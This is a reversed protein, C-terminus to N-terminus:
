AKLVILDMWGFLDRRVGGGPMHPAAIWQEAKACRWDNKRAISMARQSMLIRKALLVGFFLSCAAPVPVRHSINAAAQEPPHHLITIDACLFLGAFGNRSHPASENKTKLSGPM